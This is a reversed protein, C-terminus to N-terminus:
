KKGRTQISLEHLLLHVDHFYQKGLKMKGQKNGYSEAVLGIIRGSEDTDIIVKAPIVRDFFSFESLISLFLKKCQLGYADLHYNKLLADISNPDIDKAAHVVIMSTFISRSRGHLPIGHILGKAQKSAYVSLFSSFAKDADIGTFEITRASTVPAIYCILFIINLINKM